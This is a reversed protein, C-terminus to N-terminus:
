SRAWVYRGRFRWVVLAGVLIVAALLPYGLIDVPSWQLDGTDPARDKVPTATQYKFSELYMRVTQNAVIGLDAFSARFEVFKGGEADSEVWDQDLVQSITADTDAYRVTVDADSTSVLPDYDVVVERDINGTFIGDNNTDM